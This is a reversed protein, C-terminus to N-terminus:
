RVPAALNPIPITTEIGRHDSARHAPLVRSRPVQNRKMLRRVRRAYRIVYGDIQRRGHTGGNPALYVRGRITAEIFTRLLRELLNANWDAGAVKVDPHFEASSERLATAYRRLCTVWDRAHRASGKRLLLLRLLTEVGSPMHCTSVMLRVGTERDDLVAIGAVVPLGVGLDPMLPHVRYSVKRMVTQDYAISVEADTWPRRDVLVDWGPIPFDHRALFDDRRGDATETMTIVVAGLRRSRLIVAMLLRWSRDWRGSLHHFRRRTMM